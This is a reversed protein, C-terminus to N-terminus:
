NFNLLRMGQSALTDIRPTPAGRLIGGGYVGLEGYGLNDMFMFVINPPKDAATAPAVACVTAAAALLPWVTTSFKRNVIGRKRVSLLGSLCLLRLPRDTSDTPGIRAACPVPLGCLCRDIQELRRREGRTTETRRVRPLRVQWKSQRLLHMRDALHVQHR